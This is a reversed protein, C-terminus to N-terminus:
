RKSIKVPSLSVHPSHHVGFQIGYIRFVYYNQLVPLYQRNIGHCFNANCVKEEGIHESSKSRLLRKRRGRKDERNLVSTSALEMVEEVTLDTVAAIKDVPDGYSLLKKATERTAVAVAEQAYALVKNYDLKIAECHAEHWFIKGKNMEDVGEM